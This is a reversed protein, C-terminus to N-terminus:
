NILLNQCKTENWSETDPAQSTSTVRDLSWYKLQIIQNANNIQYVKFKDTVQCKKKNPRVVAASTKM